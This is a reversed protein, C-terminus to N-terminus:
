QLLRRVLKESVSTMDNHRTGPIVKEERRREEKREKMVKKKEKMKKKKEEKNGERGVLEESVSTM